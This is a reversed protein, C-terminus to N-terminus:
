IYITNVGSVRKAVYKYIGNASPEELVSSPALLNGYHITYYYLGPPGCICCLSSIVEQAGQRGLIYHDQPKLLKDEELDAEKRFAGKREAAASAADHERSHFGERPLSHAEM